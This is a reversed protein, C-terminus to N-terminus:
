ERERVPRYVSFFCCSGGEIYSQVVRRRQEETTLGMKERYYRAQLVFAHANHNCQSALM